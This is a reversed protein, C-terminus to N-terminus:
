AKQSKAKKILKKVTPSCIAGNSVWHEIRDQHLQIINHTFPDYAGLNELCAGDRKKQSDVAVIRWYPRNRKGIRSLRIKVAM